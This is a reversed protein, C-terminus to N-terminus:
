WRYWFLVRIEQSASYMAQLNTHVSYLTNFYVKTAFRKVCDIFERWCNSPLFACLYTLSSLAYNMKFVGKLLECYYVRFMPITHVWTHSTFFAYVGHLLHNNLEVYFYMYCNLIYRYSKDSMSLMLISIERTDIDIRKYIVQTKHWNIKHLHVIVIICPMNYMFCRIFLTCWYHM